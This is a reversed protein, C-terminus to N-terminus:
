LKRLLDLEIAQKAVLATQRQPLILVGTTLEIRQTIAALCTLLV